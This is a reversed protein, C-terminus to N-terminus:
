SQARQIVRAVRQLRESTGYYQKRLYDVAAVREEEPRSLWYLLDEKASQMNQLNSKRVVKKIM